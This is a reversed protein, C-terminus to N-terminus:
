TLVYVRTCKWSRSISTDRTLYRAICEGHGRHGVHVRPWRQRLWGTKPPHSRNQSRIRALIQGARQRESDRLACRQEAHEAQGRGDRPDRSIDDRRRNFSVYSIEYMASICWGITLSINAVRSVFIVYSFMYFTRSTTNFLNCMVFYCIIISM